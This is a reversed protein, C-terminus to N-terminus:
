VAKKIFQDPISELLYEFNKGARRHQILNEERAQRLKESGWGTLDTIWKPKVWTQRSQKQSIHALKANIRVLETKIQPDLAM